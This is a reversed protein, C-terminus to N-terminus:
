WPITEGQYDRYVCGPKGGCQALTKVLGAVSEEVGIAADAGGMDTRVWGPHLAVVSREAHRAAYSRLLTNLAAKSARYVEHGGATNNAVSGLVSSMAAITGDPVVLDAFLEIVRMPALANTVLLRNFDEVEVVGIPKQKDHSIGANVFLLDLHEGALRGRLAALAADDTVELEEVVLRGEGAEAALAALPGLKRQTAIVRWGEALYARALGLGLGRSAGILLITRANPM